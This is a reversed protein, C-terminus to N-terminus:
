EQSTLLTTSNLDMNCIPISVNLIGNYKDASTSINRIMLNADPSVSTYSTRAPIYDPETATSISYPTYEMLVISDQSHDDADNQAWSIKCLMCFILLFLLKPSKMQFTKLLNNSEQLMSKRHRNAPSRIKPEPNM